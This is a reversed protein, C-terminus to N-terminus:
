RFFRPEILQHAVALVLLAGAAGLLPAFRDITAFGAAAAAVGHFVWALVLAALLLKGWGAPRAILYGFVGILGLASVALVAEFARVLFNSTVLDVLSASPKIKLLLRVDITMTWWLAFMVILMAFVYLARLISTKNPM